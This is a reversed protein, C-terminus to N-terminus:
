VAVDAAWDLADLVRSKQAAAARIDTVDDAGAHQVGCDQAARDCVATDASEFCLRCQSYWSYSGYDGRRFDGSRETGNRTHWQPQLGRWRGLWESLRHDGRVPHAVGALRDYDDESIARRQGVVPDVRNH